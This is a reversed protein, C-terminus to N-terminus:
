NALELLGEKLLDQLLAEIDQQCTDTDVEYEQMILNCLEAVTQPEAELADWVAAGVEDLGYYVGKEHNLIVVEGAVTSAIQQTSLRFKKDHPLSM